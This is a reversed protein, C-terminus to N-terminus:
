SVSLSIATKTGVTSWESPINTVKVKLTFFVGTTLSVFRTEERAKDM